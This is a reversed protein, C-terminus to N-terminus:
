APPTASYPPRNPSAGWSAGPAGHTQRSAIVSLALAALIVALRALILRSPNM